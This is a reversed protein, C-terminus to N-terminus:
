CISTLETSPMNITEKSFFTELEVYEDATFYDDLPPYYIKPQSVRRETRSIREVTIDIDREIDNRNKDLEQLKKYLFDRKCELESKPAKGIM